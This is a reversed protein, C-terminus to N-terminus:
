QWRAIMQVHQVHQAPDTPEVDIRGETQCLDFITELGGSIMELYSTSRMAAPLERFHIRVSTPALVEVAVTGASRYTASWGRPMAKFISSPTFGLIRLTSEILGSLISRKFVVRAIRRAWARLPERGVVGYVADNLEASVEIALWGVDPTARILQLSEPRIAARISQQEAASFFTLEDLARRLNVARIATAEDSKKGM